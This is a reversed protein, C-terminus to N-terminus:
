AAGGEAKAILAHAAGRAESDKLTSPTKTFHRLLAKLGGVLEANLASLREREEELEAAHRWGERESTSLRRLETRVQEIDAADEGVFELWAGELADALRIAEPTSM